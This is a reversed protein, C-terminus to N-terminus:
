LRIFFFFTQICFFINSFWFFVVVRLDRLVVVGEDLFGFALLLLMLFVLVIM